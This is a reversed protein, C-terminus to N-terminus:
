ANSQGQTFRILGLSIGVIHLMGLPKQLALGLRQQLSISARIIACASAQGKLLRGLHAVLQRRKDRTNCWCDTSVAGVGIHVNQGHPHLAPASAHIQGHHAATPMQAVPSIKRRMHFVGM